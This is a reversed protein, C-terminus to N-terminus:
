QKFLSMSIFKLSYGFGLWDKWYIGDYYAGPTYPGNPYYHGNPLTYACYNFWWGCRMNVACHNQDYRDPTYFYMGNQFVYFYM